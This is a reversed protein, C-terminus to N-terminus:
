FSNYISQLIVFFSSYWTMKFWPYDWDTCVLSFLDMQFYIIVSKTQFGKRLNNVSCIRQVALWVTSKLNGLYWLYVDSVELLFLEYMLIVHDKPTEWFWTMALIDLIKQSPGSTRYRTLITDLWFSWVRTTYFCCENLRVNTKISKIHSHIFYRGFLFSKETCIYLPFNLKWIHSKGKKSGASNGM